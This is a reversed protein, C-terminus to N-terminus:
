KKTPGKRVQAVKQRAAAEKAARQKDSNRRPGKRRDSQGSDRSDSSISRVGGGVSMDNRVHGSLYGEKGPIVINANPASQLQRRGRQKSVRRDRGSRPDSVILKLGRKVRGFFGM